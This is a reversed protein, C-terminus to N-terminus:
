ARILGPQDPDALAQVRAGARPGAWVTMPLGTERPYLNTMEYPAEVMKAPRPKVLRQGSPRTKERLTTM